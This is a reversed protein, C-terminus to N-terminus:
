DEKTACGPEIFATDRTYPVARCDGGAGFITGSNECERKLPSFVAAAVTQLPVVLKSM